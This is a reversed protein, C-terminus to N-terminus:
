VVGDEWESYAGGTIIEKMEEVTLKDSDSLNTEDIEGSSPSYLGLFEMVMNDIREKLQEANDIDALNKGSVRTWMENLLQPLAGALMGVAGAPVSLANGQVDLWEKLAGDHLNNFAQVQAPVYDLQNEGTGFSQKRLAMESEVVFLDADM